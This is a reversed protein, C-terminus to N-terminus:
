DSSFPITTEFLVSELPNTEIEHYVEAPSMYYEWGDYLQDEVDELKCLCGEKMEKKAREVLDALTLGTKSTIIGTPKNVSDFCDCEPTVEMHKISPQAILMDKWKRSIQTLGHGPGDEEFRIWLKREDTLAEEVISDDDSDLSDDPDPLDSADFDVSLGGFYFTRRKEEILPSSFGNQVSEGEGVPKLFLKAQLKNSAYIVNRIGRCTESIHLVDIFVTDELIM